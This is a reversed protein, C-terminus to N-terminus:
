HEIEEVVRALTLALSYTAFSDADIKLINAAVIFSLMQIGFIV